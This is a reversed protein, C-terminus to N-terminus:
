LVLTRTRFNVVDPFCDDNRPARLTGFCDLAPKAGPTRGRRVGPNAASAIVTIQPHSSNEFRSVPEGGWAPMSLPRTGGCVTSFPPDGHARDIHRLADPEAFPAGVDAQALVDVLEAVGLLRHLGDDRGAPRALAIPREDRLLLGIAQALRFDDGADGAPLLHDVGVEIGLELTGDA